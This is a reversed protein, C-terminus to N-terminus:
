ELPRKWERKLDAVENIIEKLLISVQKIIKLSYYTRVAITIISGMQIIGFIILGWILASSVAQMAETMPTFIGSFM